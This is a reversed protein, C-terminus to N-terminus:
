EVKQFSASPGLQLRDAGLTGLLELQDPSEAHITFEASTTPGGVLGNIRVREGSQLGHSPWILRAPSQETAPSFTLGTPEDAVPVTGSRRSRRAGEKLRYAALVTDFSSGETDLVMTGARPAVWKWWVSHHPLSKGAHDPEGIQGTANRTVTSEQGRNGFLIEAQQIDDNSPPETTERVDLNAIAAVVQDAKNRVQVGYEGSQEISLRAVSYSPFVAGDISGGNLIWQYEFPATGNVEVVFEISEGEVRSFVSVKSLVVPPLVEEPPKPPETIPTPEPYHLKFSGSDEHACGVQIYYLVGATVPFEAVSAIQNKKFDDNYAITELQEVSKGTFIALTTDIRSGLTSLRANGTIHPRWSYWVTHSLNDRFLPEGEELTAFSNDGNILNKSLDLPLANQFHDNDPSKNIKIPTTGVFDEFGNLSAEVLLEASSRDPTYASTTYIGDGEVSDHGQGNDLLRAVKLSSLKATVTADSGVAQGASVRAQIIMEEGVRPATPSYTVEVDLAPDPASVLANYVDLMGGSVTKGKLSELPRATDILRQRIERPTLNPEQSLLLVAAGSVFPAAFSTGQVSGNGNNSPSPKPARFGIGPAAIDVSKLGFSSRWQNTNALNGAKDVATVSIINPLPYCSPYHRYEGDTDTYEEVVKMLKPDQSNGSAAVVLIGAEGARQIADLELLSGENKAYRGYSANIIHAGNKIAYDIAEIIAGMESEQNHFAKIPMIQCEWAMGVFKGQEVSAGIIGAIETGHGDTDMTTNNYNDADTQWGRDDDVWGNNDDDLSNNPIEGPNRWMQTALDLHNHDVGSDIVAVVIEKSGTTIDWAKEANVHYPQNSDLGWQRSPFAKNHESTDPTRHLVVQWNPEVLEYNGSDMMEKIKARVGLSKLEAKKASLLSLSSTTVDEASLVDSLKYDLPDDIYVIDNLVSNSRRVRASGVRNVRRKLSRRGQQSLKAIYSGALAPQGDVFVIEKSTAQFHALFSLNKRAELQLPNQDTSFDGSWGIFEYGPDATASLTVSDGQQYVGAGSVTGSGLVNVEVLVEASLV